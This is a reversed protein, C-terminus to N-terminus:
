DSWDERGTCGTHRHLYISDDGLLLQLTNLPRKAKDGPGEGAALPIILSNPSFKLSLKLM